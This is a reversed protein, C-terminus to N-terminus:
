NINIVLEDYDVYQNEDVIEIESVRPCGLITKRFNNQIPDEYMEEEVQDDISDLNLDNVINNSVDDYNIANTGTLLHNNGYYNDTIFPMYRMQSCNWFNDNDLGYLQRRLEEGDELSYCPDTSQDDDLLFQINDNDSNFNEDPDSICSDSIESNIKNDDSDDNSSSCLGKLREYHNITPMIVRNLLQNTAIVNDDQYMEICKDLDAIINEKFKVLLIINETM